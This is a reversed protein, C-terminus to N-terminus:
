NVEEAGYGPSNGTRLLPHHHCFRAPHVEPSLGAIVLTPPGGQIKSPIQGIISPEPPEYYCRMANGERRMFDCSECSIPSGAVSSIRGAIETEPVGNRNKTM